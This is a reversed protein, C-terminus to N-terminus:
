LTDSRITAGSLDSANRELDVGRRFPIPSRELGWRRTLLARVVHVLIQIDLWISYNRLYFLDLSIEAELDQPRAKDVLWWPGIFGPKASELFAMADLHAEARNRSLPRPGLLSMSGGLVFLLNPLRTLHARKAWSPGEFNWMTFPAQSGVVPEAELGHGRGSLLSMASLLAMIPVTIFFVPIGLTLDLVRKMAADLGVIRTPHPALALVPGLQQPSMPTAHLDFLGPILNIAVGNSRHMARVMAQLSEWSLGSEVVLARTVGHQEAIRALDMPEGLVRRAGMVLTGKPMYESLFGIV